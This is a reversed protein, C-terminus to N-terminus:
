SGDYKMKLLLLDEELEILIRENKKTIYYIGTFNDDMWERPIESSSISWKNRIMQLALEPYQGKLFKWENPELERDRAVCIKDEGETDTAIVAQMARMAKKLARASGPVSPTSYNWMNDDYEIM